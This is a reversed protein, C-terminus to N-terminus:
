PHHTLCFTQAGLAGPSAVRYIHKRAGETASTLPDVEISAALAGGVGAGGPLLSPLGQPHLTDRIAWLRLNCSQLFSVDRPRGPPYFCLFPLPVPTGGEREPGPPSSDCGWGAAKRDERKEKERM